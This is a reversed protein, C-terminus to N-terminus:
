AVVVEEMISLLQANQRRPRGNNGVAEDDDDDDDHGGLNTDHRGDTTRRTTLDYHESMNWESGLPYSVLM